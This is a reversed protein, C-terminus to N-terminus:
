WTSSGLIGSIAAVAVALVVVIAAVRRLGDHAGPVEGAMDDWAPVNPSPYLKSFDAMAAALHPDSRLLDAEILRLQREHRYSLSM